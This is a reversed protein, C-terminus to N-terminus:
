FDLWEEALRCITNQVNNSQLVYRFRSLANQQFSECLMDVLHLYAAMDAVLISSYISRAMAFLGM